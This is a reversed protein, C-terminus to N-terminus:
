LYSFKIITNEKYEIQIETMLIKNELEDADAKELEALQHTFEAGNGYLLITEGNKTISIKGYVDPLTASIRMKMGCENRICRIVQRTSTEGLNPLLAKCLSCRRRYIIKIADVYGTFTTVTEEEKYVANQIDPIKEVITYPTSSIFKQGNYEKVVMNTLKYSEEINILDISKDWMSVVIFATEDAARYRQINIEGRSMQIKRANEIINNM